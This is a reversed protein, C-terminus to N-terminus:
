LRILAGIANIYKALHVNEGIKVGSISKITEVPVSLAQSLNEGLGAIESYSGFIYAHTVPESSKRRLQFQVMKLLEDAVRGVYKHAAEALISDNLLTEPTIDINNIDAKKDNPASSKIYGLNEAIMLFESISVPSIRSFAREGGSILHIEISDYELDVFLVSKGDTPLGNVTAGLLLKEVCNSHIDLAAPKLKFSKFLVYYKDVFDKELAYAWVNVPKNKQPNGIFTYEFVYDSPESVGQIMQNKVMATIERPKAPPLEFRRSFVSNSTFTIVASGSKYSRAKLLKSITMVLASHNKIDGDDITGPPLKGEDCKRVDINGSSVSGEAIYVMDGNLDISLLM